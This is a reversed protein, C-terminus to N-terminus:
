SMKDQNIRLKDSYNGTGVSKLGHFKTMQIAICQSIPHIERVKTRPYMVSIRNCFPEYLKENSYDLFNLAVSLQHMLM